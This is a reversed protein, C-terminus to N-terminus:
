SLSNILSRVQTADKGAYRQLVDGSCPLQSTFDQVDYVKGQVLIWLGGDKNHNFLDCERIPTADDPSNAASKGYRDDSIWDACHELLYLSSHM